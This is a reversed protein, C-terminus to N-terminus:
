WQLQAGLETGGEVIREVAWLKARGTGEIRLRFRGYRIPVVPVQVIRRRGISGFAHVTQWEEQEDYRIMVECRSRAELQIDLVVRVLHKHEPMGETLDGTELMWPIEEADEGVITRLRNDRGDIYWLQGGGSAAYLMRTEDERYWLQRSTDYCWLSWVGDGDQGSLYYRGGAGGGVADLLRGSGLQLGIREPTGGLYAAVGDESLYYLVEDLECLSKEAGAAPGRVKQTIAQYNSPKTGYMKHVGEAKMLLAYGQLSSAGTFAGGSGVTVAYSDTSLGEYCDWNKPDGLKCARIEHGDKTVGWLRNDLETLLDFDPVRRSLTLTVNTEEEFCLDSFTLVGSEAGLCVATKNNGATAAGTITIGDYAAFGEGIGAAEITSGTINAKGSWSHELRELTGDITHYRVKDPWICLYAGMRVMVKDSDSLEAVQVGDKYLGTGDAWYLGDAWILGHPKQLPEYPLTGRPPRVAAAPYEGSWLNKCDFFYNAGIPDRHDVGRFEQVTLQQKAGDEKLYPLKM